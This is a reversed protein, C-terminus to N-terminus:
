EARGQTEHRNGAPERRFLRRAQDIKVVALELRNQRRESKERPQAAQKELETAAEAFLKEARSGLGQRATLDDLRLAQSLVGPWPIRALELRAPGLDVAVGSKRAIADLDLRARECAALRTDLDQRVALALRTRVQETRVMEAKGPPPSKSLTELYELALDAYGKQRLKRVFDLSDEGADQASAALSAAFWVLLLLISLLHKM